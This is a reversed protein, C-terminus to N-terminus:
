RCRCRRGAELFAREGLVEGLQDASGDGGAQLGDRASSREPGLRGVLVREIQPSSGRAFFSTSSSAPPEDAAARDVDARERVGARELAHRRHDQVHVLLEADVRAEASVPRGHSEIMAPRPAAPSRALAVVEGRQDRSAHPARPRRRARRRASPRRSPRPGRRAGRRPRARALLRELERGAGVRALMSTIRRSAARMTRARGGSTIASVRWPKTQAEAPTSAEFAGSGSLTTSSGSHDPRM